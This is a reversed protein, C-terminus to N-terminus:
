LFFLLTLIPSKFLSVLGVTTDASCLTFNTHYNLLTLIPSKLLSVLGVTMDASSDHVSKAEAKSPGAAAAKLISELQSVASGGAGAGAGETGGAAGDGGGGSAGDLLGQSKQLGERYTQNSADIELAAQYADVSLAYRRAAFQASGMRGYAKASRPNVKLAAQCDEVAADYKGQTSIRL